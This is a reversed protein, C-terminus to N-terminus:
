PGPEWLAALDVTTNDIELVLEGSCEGDADSATATWRGEVVAGAAALPIDLPVPELRVMRRPRIDFSDFWITTGNADSDASWGDLM